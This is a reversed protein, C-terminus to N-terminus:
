RCAAEEKLLWVALLVKRRDGIDFTALLNETEKLWNRAEVFTETGSFNKGGMMKFNKCTEAFDAQPPQPLLPVDAVSPPPPVAAKVPFVVNSVGPVPATVELYRRFWDPITVGEPLIPNDSM